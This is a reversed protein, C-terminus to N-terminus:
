SAHPAVVSNYIKVVTALSPFMKDACTVPATSGRLQLASTPSQEKTVTRMCETSV